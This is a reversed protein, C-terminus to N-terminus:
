NTFHLLFWLLDLSSGSIIADVKIATLKESLTYFVNPPRTFFPIKLVSNLFCGIVPKLISVSSHEYQLWFWIVKWFQLILSNKIGICSFIFGSSPRKLFLFPYKEFHHLKIYFHIVSVVTCNKLTGHLLFNHRSFHCSINIPVM